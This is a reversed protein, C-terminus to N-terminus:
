GQLGEIICDRGVDPDHWLTSGIVIACTRGDFRWSSM